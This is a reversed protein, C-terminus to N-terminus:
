PLSVAFPEPPIPILVRAQPLHHEHRYRWDEIQRANQFWRPDLDVNVHYNGVVGLGFVIIM